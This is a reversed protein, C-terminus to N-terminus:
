EDDDNEEENYNHILKNCLYQDACEKMYQCLSMKKNYLTVSFDWSNWAIGSTNPHNYLEEEISFIVNEKLNKLIEQSNNGSVLIVATKINNNIKNKAM